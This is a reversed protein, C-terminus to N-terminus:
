KDEKEKELQLEIMKEEDDVASLLALYDKGGGLGKKQHFKRTTQIIEKYLKPGINQLTPQLSNKRLRKEDEFDEYGKMLHKPDIKMLDAVDAVVEYLAFAFNLDKLEEATISLTEVLEEYHEQFTEEGNKFDVACNKLFGHVEPGFNQECPRASIMVGDKGRPMITILDKVELGEIEDALHAAVAELAEGSPTRERPTPSKEGVVM